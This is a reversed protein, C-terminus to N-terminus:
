LPDNRLTHRYINSLSAIAALKHVKNFEHDEFSASFPCLSM